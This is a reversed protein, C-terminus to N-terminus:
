KFVEALKLEHGLVGTNISLSRLKELFSDFKVFLIDVKKGCDIHLFLM